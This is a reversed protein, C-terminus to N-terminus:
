AGTPWPRGPRAATDGQKIPDPCGGGHQLLGWAQGGPTCRLWCRAPGWLARLFGTEPRTSYSLTHSSSYFRGRPLGAKGQVHDCPRGAACHPSSPPKALGSPWTPGQARLAQSVLPKRFVLSGPPCGLKPVGTGPVPSFRSGIREPTPSRKTKLKQGGEGRWINAHPRCQGSCQKM